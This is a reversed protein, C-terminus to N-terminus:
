LPEPFAVLYTKWDLEDRSSIPPYGPKLYCLRYGAKILEDWAVNASESGHLELLVLSRAQTLVQRMGPLAMVEGGEIDMKIVSPEPQDDRYVFDDLAYGQVIMSEAKDTEQRGGSGEIKGMKGSPGVWFRVPASRDSVAAEIVRVREQLDNLAVNTALRKANEPFAEFAVVLGDPGVVKALLLTMYGINAGLDYAVVGPNILDLIAAQLDPEYTGLWYDKETQLDVLLHMGALGGAAIKVETLGPPAARNLTGRLWGALWPIRYIFRKLRMPMLRAAGSALSLVINSM